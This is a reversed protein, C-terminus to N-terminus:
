RKSYAIDSFERGGGEESGLACRGLDSPSSVREMLLSPSSRQRELSPQVSAREDVGPGSICPFAKDGSSGRALAKPALATGGEMDALGRYGSYAKFLPFAEECLLGEVAQYGLQSSCSSPCLSFLGDCGLTCLLAMCLIYLFICTHAKFPDSHHWTSIHTWASTDVFAM